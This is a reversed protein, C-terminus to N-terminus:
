EPMLDVPSAPPPAMSAALGLSALFLEARTCTATLWPDQRFFGHRQDPAIWMEARIGAAKCSRYLADAPSKWRADGSGFFLILPAALMPIMPFPELKRDPELSFAPNFLVLAAATAPVRLDDAPDDIGIEMASMTAIHGGASGGGMIVRGPDVGLEEAHHKVWRLASRADEICVRRTSGDGPNQPDIFRYDAAVAVMGRAAFHRCHAHLDTRSGRIWVGGHFLLMAPAPAFNGPQAKPFFIDLELTREGAVKYSRTQPSHSAPSIAGPHATQLM